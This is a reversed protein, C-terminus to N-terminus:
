YIRYRLGAYISRGMVPGWIISGDFYQGFPNAPDIFVREQRYDFLNEVGFYLDFIEGIKKTGQANILMFSPSFDGVRLDVPNGGTDPLRKKGFWSATMDYIMEKGPTTYSLNLLVREKSNLLKERMEGNILQKSDVYRFALRAELNKHPFLNLEIQLTNSYAGKEVSAFQVKRLDSEWDAITAVTFDTRYIDLSVTADLDNVYFYHMLNLGYNWASEKELGFGYNSSPNISIERQTAFLQSNEAFINSTRFGKGAVGRLIWDENVAYKLHVRPSVMLNYYNHYDGRIGAILTIDDNIKNNYEVFIGPISENREYKHTLVEEKYQDFMYSGGLRLKNDEDWMLTEYILNIFGRKERGEYKRLGYLASNSYSSLSWKLGISGYGDENLIYGTKGYINLNSSNSNFSYGQVGKGEKTDNLYSIGFQGEIGSNSTFNWRQMVNYNKFEPMDTFGDINVDSSYKRGSGHLMTITSIYDNFAYRYNLNGEFRRDQDGFLNLYIREGDYGVPKQMEIDISGTISEFGESVPGIGKSVNISKMWSGPIYNLGSSSSLGRLYPLNEVTTQIYIGSLGLLEIQKAGSIPDTFTVDVSINTEFSESLNCCAAKFLEKEGIKSRNEVGLYDPLISPKNSTVEVANIDYIGKSLLVELKEEGKYIVFETKYGAASFVLTDGSERKEISFRGEKDTAGGSNSGKWIINVNELLAKEGAEEYHYVLGELKQSFIAGTSLFILLIISKIV